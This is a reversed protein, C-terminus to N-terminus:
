TYHGSCCCSCCGVVEVDDVGTLVVVVV